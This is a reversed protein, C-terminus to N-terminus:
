DRADPRELAITEEPTLFRVPPDFHFDLQLKEDNIVMGKGVMELVQYHIATTEEFDVKGERTATVRITGYVDSV